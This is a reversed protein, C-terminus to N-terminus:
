NYKVFLYIASIVALIIIWGLCNTGLCNFKFPTKRITDLQEDLTKSNDKNGSNEEPLINM